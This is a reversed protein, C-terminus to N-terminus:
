YLQWCVPSLISIIFLKGRSSNGELSGSVVGNAIAPATAEAGSPVVDRPSIALAQVHNAQLRGAFWSSNIYYYYGGRSAMGEKGALFCPRYWFSFM